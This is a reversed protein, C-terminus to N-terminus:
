QIESGRGELKYCLAKAVISSCAGLTVLYQEVFASHLKNLSEMYGKDQQM